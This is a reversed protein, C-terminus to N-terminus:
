NDRVELWILIVYDWNASLIVHANSEVTKFLAESKRFISSVKNFRVIHSVKKYYNDGMWKVILNKDRKVLSFDCFFAFNKLNLANFFLINKMWWSHALKKAVSWKINNVSTLHIFPRHASLLLSTINMAFLLPSHPWTPSHNPPHSLDLQTQNSLIPSILDDISCIMLGQRHRGGAQKWGAM